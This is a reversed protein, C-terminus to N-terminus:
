SERFILVSQTGSVNIGLVEKGKGAIGELGLKLKKGFNEKPLIVKKREGADIVIAQPESLDSLDVAEVRKALDFEKWDELMKLYIKVREQNEKRARETNDRNWGQMYFPPKEDSKEVIGLIVGEEDAWFDGGDIRVVAKGEREIVNVRVKDPLVRSVAASKVLTMKEVQTKIEDLNANWVGSKETQNRVIREIESKPARSAGNIEIAKVDFFSSATVTRYGMLSLFGLCVLIGVLLFLPVLFNVFNGSSKRRSPVSTRRKRPTKAASKNTTRTIRRKRVAMNKDLGCATHLFNQESSM